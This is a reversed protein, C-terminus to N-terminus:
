GSGPIFRYDECSKLDVHPSIVLEQILGDSKVIRKINEDLIDIQLIVDEVDIISDARSFPILNKRARQLVREAGVWNKREAHYCAVSFQILGQYLM